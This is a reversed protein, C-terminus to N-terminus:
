KKPKKLPRGEFFHFYRMDDPTEATQNVTKGRNGPMFTEPMRRVRRLTEVVAEREIKGPHFPLQGPFPRQFVFTMKFESM